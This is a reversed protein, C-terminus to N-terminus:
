PQTLAGQTRVAIVSLWTRCYCLRVITHQANSWPVSAPRLRPRNDPNRAFVLWSSYADMEWQSVRKRFSEQSSSRSQLVLRHDEVTGPARAPRYSVTKLALGRNLRDSQDLLKRGREASQGFRERKMKAILLKLYAVM